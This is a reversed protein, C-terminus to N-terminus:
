LFEYMQQSQLKGHSMSSTDSGTEQSPVHFTQQHNESVSFANRNQTSSRSLNPSSIVNSGCTQPEHEHNDSSSRRLFTAARKKNFNSPGPKPLDCGRRQLLASFFHASQLFQPFLETELVRYVSQYPQLFLQQTPRFIPSEIAAQITNLSDKSILFGNDSEHVQLLSNFVDRSQRRWKDVHAQEVASQASGKKDSSLVAAASNTENDRLSGQQMGDHEHIDIKQAIRGTELSTEGHTSLIKNTSAHDLETTDCKWHSKIERQQNEQRTINEQIMESTWEDVNLVFLLLEIANKERLFAQFKGFVLKSHALVDPLRKTLATSRLRPKVRSFLKELIPTSFPSKQRYRSYDIESNDFLFLIRSNIFHKSCCMNLVPFIGFAGIASAVLDRLPASKILSEECLLNVIRQALFTCYRRLHTSSLTAPHAKSNDLVVLREIRQMQFSTLQEPQVILDNRRLTATATAHHAPLQVFAHAAACEQIHERFITFCPGLVFAHLDAKQLRILAKALMYRIHFILEKTLTEDDTIKVYWQRVYQELLSDIIKELSADVISPIRTYEWPHTDIRRTRPMTRTCNSLGCDRCIGRHDVSHSKEDVFTNEIKEFNSLEVEVQNNERRRDDNVEKMRMIKQNELMFSADTSNEPLFSNRPKIHKYFLVAFFFGAFFMWHLLSYLPTRYVFLAATTIALSFIAQQHTILLCLRRLFTPYSTSEKRLSKPSSSQYNTGVREYHVQRLHSMSSSTSADNEVIHETNSKSVTTELESAHYFQQKHASEESKIRIQDQTLPDSQKNQENLRQPLEEFHCDLQCQQEELHEISELKQQVTPINGDVDLRCGHQSNMAQIKADTNNEDCNLSHSNEEKPDSGDESQAMMSPNKDLPLPRQNDGGNDELSAFFEDNLSNSDSLVHKEEWEM